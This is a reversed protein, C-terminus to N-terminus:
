KVINKFTNNIQTRVGAALDQIKPAKKLSFPSVSAPYSYFDYDYQSSLDQDTKILDPFRNWTEASNGGLGHVFIILKKNMRFSMSNDIM